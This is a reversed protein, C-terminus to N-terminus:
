FESYYHRSEPWMDESVANKRLDTIITLALPYFGTRTHSADRGCKAQNNLGGAGGLFSGGTATKM